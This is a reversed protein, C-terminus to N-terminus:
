VRNKTVLISDTRENAATTFDEGNSALVRTHYICDRTYLYRITPPCSVIICTQGDMGGSLCGNWWRVMWEVTARGVSPVHIHTSSCGCKPGHL